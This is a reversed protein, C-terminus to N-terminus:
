LLWAAITPALAVTGGALLGSMIRLRADRERPACAILLMVVPLLPAVALRTGIARGLLAGCAAGWWGPRRVSGAARWLAVICLMALAISVDQAWAKGSGLMFLPSTMVM